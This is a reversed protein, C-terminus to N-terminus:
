LTVLMVFYRIFLNVIVRMPIYKIEHLSACHPVVSLLFHFLLRILRTTIKRPISISILEQKCLRLYHFSIFFHTLRLSEVSESFEVNIIETVVPSSGGALLILAAEAAM